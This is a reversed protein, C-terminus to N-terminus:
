AAELSSPCVPSSKSSGPGGYSWIGNIIILRALLTSLISLITTYIVESHPIDVALVLDLSLFVIAPSLGCVCHCIIMM